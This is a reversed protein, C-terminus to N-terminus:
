RASKAAATRAHMEQTTAVIREINAKRDSAKHAAWLTAFNAPLNAVGDVASRVDSEFVGGILNDNTLKYSRESVKEICTTNALVLRMGRSSMVCILVPRDDYDCVKRFAILSVEENGVEQMQSIRLVVQSGVLLAKDLKLDSKALVSDALARKSGNPTTDRWHLICDVLEALNMPGM